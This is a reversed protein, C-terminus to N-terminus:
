RIGHLTSVKRLESYLDLCDWHVNCYKQSSTSQYRTQEDTRSRLQTACCSNSATRWQPKYQTTHLAPSQPQHRALRDTGTESNVARKNNCEKKQTIGRRRFKRHRRKPLSHEMKLALKFSSHLSFLSRTGSSRCICNLRWPIVWLFSCLMWLVAFTQFWSNEEQM